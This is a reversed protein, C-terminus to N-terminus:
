YFWFVLNIREGPCSGTVAHLVSGKHLILMGEEMKLSDHEFELLQNCNEAKLCLNATWFGGDMHKELTEASPDYSVFFAHAIEPYESEPLNLLKAFPNLSKSMNYGFTELETPRLSYGKKSMTNPMRNNKSLHKRYLDVMFNCNKKTLFNKIVLVNGNEYSITKSEDPNPVPSPLHPSAYCTLFPERFTDATPKEQLLKKYSERIKEKAGQSQIRNHQNLLERIMDSTSLDEPLIDTDDDISPFNYDLLEKVVDEKQHEVAFHLLTRGGVMPIRFGSVTMFIKKTRLSVLADLGFKEYFERIYLMYRSSDELLVSHFLLPLGDRCMYIMQSFRNKPDTEKHLNELHHQLLEM